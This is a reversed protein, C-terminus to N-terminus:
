GAPPRRWISAPPALDWTVGSRAILACTAGTLILAIRGAGDSGPGDIALMALGAALGGTLAWAVPLRLGPNRRGAAALAMTGLTVPLLAAVAGVPVALAVIGIMGFMAADLGIAIPDVQSALAILGMAALFVPGAAATGRLIGTAYRIDDM